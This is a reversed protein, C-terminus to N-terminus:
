SILPLYQWLRVVCSVYMGRILLGYCLGYISGLQYSFFIWMIDCNHDQVMFVSHGLFKCKIVVRVYMCVYMCVIMYWQRFGGFYAGIDVFGEIARM